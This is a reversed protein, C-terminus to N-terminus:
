LQKDLLENIESKVKEWDVNPGRETSIWYADDEALIKFMIKIIENIIKERSM